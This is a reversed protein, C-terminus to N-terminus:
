AAMARDRCSACEGCAADSAAECSWTLEVPVGLSRALANIAAKNEALFPTLLRARGGTQGDLLAQLHEVFAESCDWYATGAHIGLAIASASPHVLLALQCLLANRGVIEGAGLPRGPTLQSVSLAVGYHAALAEAATREAQAAPQGLDVHVACPRVRELLAALMVASDLGGSLLVVTPAPQGSM